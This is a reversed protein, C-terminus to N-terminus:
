NDLNYGFVALELLFIIPQVVGIFILRPDTTMSPPSDCEVRNLKEPPAKQSGKADGKNSLEEFSQPGEQPNLKSWSSPHFPVASRMLKKQVLKLHAYTVNKLV